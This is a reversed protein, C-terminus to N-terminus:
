ALGLGFYGARYGCVCLSESRNQASKTTNRRRDSVKSSHSLEAPHNVPFYACGQVPASTSVGGYTAVQKIYAKAHGLGVVSERDNREAVLCSNRVVQVDSIFRWRDNMIGWVGPHALPQPLPSVM